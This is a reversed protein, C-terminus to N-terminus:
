NKVLNKMDKITKEVNNQKALIEELKKRDRWDLSDKEILSKEFETLEEKLKQLMSIEASINTKALENKDSYNDKIEEYTAM